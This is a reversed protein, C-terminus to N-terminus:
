IRSLNLQFTFSHLGRGSGRADSSDPVAGHVGRVAPHVAAAASVWPRGMEDTRTEAPVGNDRFKQTVGALRAAKAHRWLHGLALQLCTDGTIIDPRTHIRRIHIPRPVSTCKICCAYSVPGQWGTGLARRAEHPHQLVVLAGATQVRSDPSASPLQGCLCISVPRRCGACRPRRGGPEQPQDEAVASWLSEIDDMYSLARRQRAVSLAATHPALGSAICYKNFTARPTIFSHSGRRPVTPTHCFPIFTNVISRDISRDM